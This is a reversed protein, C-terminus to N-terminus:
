DIRINYKLDGSGVTINRRYVPTKDMEAYGSMDMPNEPMAPVELVYDGPPVDEITYEGQTVICMGVLSRCFRHESDLDLPNLDKSSTGDRKLLYIPQMASFTRGEIKGTVKFGQGYVIELDHVESGEVVVARTKIKMKGKQTAAVDTATLLYKGPPLSGWEFRGDSGSTANKIGTSKNIVEVMLGPRPNGKEDLLRGRITGGSSLTLEPLELAGETGIEFRTLASSALERHSAQICYNGPALHHIEYAGRADTQAEVGRESLSPMLQAMREEAENRGRLRVKITARAVPQGVADRVFGTISSGETLYVEVGEVTQESVVVVEASFGAAYGDAQATVVVRGPAVDSIEFRGNADIQVGSDAGPMARRVRATLEMVDGDSLGSHRYSVVLGDAAVGDHTSVQGRIAGLRRLRFIQEDPGPTAMTQVETFGEASVMVLVDETGVGDLSFTGAEETTAEVGGVAEGIVVVTAGAIGVGEADVVVGQIEGVLSQAGDYVLSLEYVEEDQIEVSATAPDDGFSAFEGAQRATVRVVGIPIHAFRFQGNEDTTEQETTWPEVSSMTDSLTPSIFVSLEPVPSGAGDVVQGVVSAGVTMIMDVPDLVPEESTLVLPESKANAWVDHDAALYVPLGFRLTRLEYRGYEDTKASVLVFHQVGDKDGEMALKSGDVPVATVRIGALPNENPDFIRGRVIGGQEVRIEVRPPTRGVELEVGVRKNNPTPFFATKQSEAQISWSGPGCQLSFEGEDDVLGTNRTKFPRSFSFVSSSSSAVRTEVGTETEEVGEEFAELTGPDSSQAVAVVRMGVAPEGEVTLVRGTVVIRDLLTIELDERDVGHRLEVVAVERRATARDEFTLLATIVGAEPTWDISFEGSDDTETQANPSEPAKGTSLFRTSERTVVRQPARSHLLVHVRPVPEGRPDNVVGVMRVTRTTGPVEAIVSSPESQASGVASEPDEEPTALPGHRGGEGVENEIATSAPGPPELESKSLFYLAVGIILVAVLLVFVLANGRENARVPDKFRMASGEFGMGRRLTPPQIPSGAPSAIM